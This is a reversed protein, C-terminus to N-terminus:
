FEEWSLGPLTDRGSCMGSLLEDGCALCEEVGCAVCESWSCGDFQYAVLTDNYFELLHGGPVVERYETIRM